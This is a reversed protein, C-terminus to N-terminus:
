LGIVKRSEDGLGWYNGPGQEGGVSMGAGLRFAKVM